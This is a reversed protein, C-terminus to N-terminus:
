RERGSSWFTSFIPDLLYSLANRKRLPVLVDAPIGARIASEGHVSRIKDLESAPVIVEISFYRMGTREDELSDASLKSIKGDLAPLNRDHLTSFRIQAVM